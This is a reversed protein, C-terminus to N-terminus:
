SGSRPAPPPPPPLSAGARGAPRTAAPTAPCRGDADLVGKLELEGMMQMGRERGWQQGVKMGEAMTVPMQTIMKQGLPSRYFKLLGDIDQADFHRQYIPVMRNLVDNENGANIFGSWFSAPVCPLAQGMISSMQSSMQMMMRDLHIVDFLQRVQAASPAAAQLSTSGVVLMLGMTWGM